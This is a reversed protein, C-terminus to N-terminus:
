LKASASTSIKQEKSSSAISSILQDQNSRTKSFQFRRTNTRVLGPCNTQNSIDLTASKRSRIIGGIVVMKWRFEQVFTRKKRRCIVSMIDLSCITRTKVTKM